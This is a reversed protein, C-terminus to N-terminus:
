LGIVRGASLLDCCIAFMSVVQGAKIKKEAQYYDVSTGDVLVKVGQEVLISLSGLVPSNECALHVGDNMLILVKPKITSTTLTKLFFKMLIKGLAENGHGFSEDTLLLVYDRAPESETKLPSLKTQLVQLLSALEKEASTMNEKM